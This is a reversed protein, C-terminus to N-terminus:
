KRLFRGDGEISWKYVHASCERKDKDQWHNWRLPRWLFSYDRYENFRPHFTRAEYRSNTIQLYEGIGDSALSALGLGRSHPFVVLRSEMFHRSIQEVCSIFGVLETSVNEEDGFKAWMAFCDSKPQLDEENSSLSYQKFYKWDSMPVRGLFLTTTSPAFFEDENEIEDVPCSRFSMMEELSPRPKMLMQNELEADVVMKPKTLRLDVDIEFDAWLKNMGVLDRHSTVFVCRFLIKLSITLM